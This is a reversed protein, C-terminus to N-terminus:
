SNTWKPKRKEIFASIGEKADNTGFLANFVGREFEIGASLTSELSFNVAKKATAIAVQSMKGIRKAEKCAYTMLEDHPVVRAVLNHEYADMATIPKGTLIMEMAKSKGVSKILAQTGGAGPILGLKIEPMGFSAEESAIMIDCM